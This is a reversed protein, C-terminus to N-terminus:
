PRVKLRSDIGNSKWALVNGRLPNDAFGTNARTESHRLFLLRSM